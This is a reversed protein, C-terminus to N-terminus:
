GEDDSDRFLWEPIVPPSLKPFAVNIDVQDPSDPQPAVVCGSCIRLHGFERPLAEINPPNNCPRGGENNGHVAYPRWLPNPPAQPNLLAQAGIGLPEPAAAEDGSGAPAAPPIPSARMAGLLYVLEEEVDSPNEEKAHLFKAMEEDIDQFCSVTLKPVITIMTENLVNFPVNFKIQQLNEMEQICTYVM